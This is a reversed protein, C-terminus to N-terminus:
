LHLRRANAERKFGPPCTRSRSLKAAIFFIIMADALVILGITDTDDM